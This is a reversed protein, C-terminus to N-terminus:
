TSLQKRGRHLDDFVFIIVPQYQQITLPSHLNNAAIKYHEGQFSPPQEIKKIRQMLGKRKVQRFVPYVIVKNLLPPRKM